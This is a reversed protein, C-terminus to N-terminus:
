VRRGAPLLAEVLVGFFSLFIGLLAGENASRGKETAVWAGLGGLCACYAFFLVPVVLYVLTATDM